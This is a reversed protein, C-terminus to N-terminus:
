TQHRREVMAIDEDIRVRNRRVAKGLALTQELQRTRAPLVIVAGLKRSAAANIAAALLRNRQRRFRGFGDAKALGGTRRLFDHRRDQLRLDIEEPKATDTGIDARGGFRIRLYAVAG